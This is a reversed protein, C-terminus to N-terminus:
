YLIDIEGDASTHLAYLWPFTLYKPSVTYCRDMSIHYKRPSEESVSLINKDKKQSVSIDILVSYAEDEGHAISDLDIGFMRLKKLYVPASIHKAWM